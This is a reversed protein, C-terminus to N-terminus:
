APSPDFSRLRQQRFLCSFDPIGWVMIKLHCVHTGEVRVNTLVPLIVERQESITVADKKILNGNVVDSTLIICDIVVM